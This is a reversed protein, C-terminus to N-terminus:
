SLHGACRFYGVDRFHLRGFPCLRTLFFVFPLLYLSKPRQYAFTEECTRLRVTFAYYFGTGFFRGSFFLEEIWFYWGWGFSVCYYASVLHSSFLCLTRRYCCEQEMPFVLRLVEENFIIQEELFIFYSSM